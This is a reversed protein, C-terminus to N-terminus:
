CGVTHRCTILDSDSADLLQAQNFCVCCCILRVAVFLVVSDETTCKKLVHVVFVVTAAPYWHLPGTTSVFMGTPRNYFM